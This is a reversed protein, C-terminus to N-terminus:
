EEEFLFDRNKYKKISLLHGIKELLYIRRVERQPIIVLAM